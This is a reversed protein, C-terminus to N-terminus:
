ALEKGNKVIHVVSVDISFRQVKCFVFHADLMTNTVSSYGTAPRKEHDRMLRFHHVGAYKNINVSM